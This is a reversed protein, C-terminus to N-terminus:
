NKSVPRLYQHAMYYKWGETIALLYPAGLLRHTRSALRITSQSLFFIENSPLHLLYALKSTTIDLSSLTPSAPLRHVVYTDTRSPRETPRLCVYSRCTSPVMFDASKFLMEASFRAVTPDGLGLRGQRGSMPLSFQSVMKIHPHASCLAAGDQPQHACGSIFHCTM